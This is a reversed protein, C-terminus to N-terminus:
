YLLQGSLFRRGAWVSPLDSAGGWLLTKFRKGLIKSHKVFPCLLILLLLVHQTKWRLRSDNFALEAWQGHEMSILCCCHIPLQKTPLTLEPRWYVCLFDHTAIHVQLGSKHQPLLYPPSPVQQVALRVLQHAGAETLSAPKSFLLSHNFFVYKVKQGGCLGVHEDM